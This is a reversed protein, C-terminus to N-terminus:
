NTRKEFHQYDKSSRWSGGWIWGRKKFERVIVSSETITGPRFKDYVSGAPIVKGKKIHPNQMPNIDIALGKAHYSTLEAGRLNRYNFSSTNNASMSIDDNWGFKVVPIVKQVPFRIEKIVEFIEILDKAASKHVVLQGQHLKDDFSYYQVDILVLNKKINEPAKTGAIAQEFTMDSDIILVDDIQASLTLFSFFFILIFNRM